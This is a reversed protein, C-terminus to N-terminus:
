RREIGPDPNRNVRKRNVVSCRPSFMHCVFIMGGESVWIAASAVGFLRIVCRAKMLKFADVFRFEIKNRVPNKREPVCAASPLLAQISGWAYATAVTTTDGPGANISLQSGRLNSLPRKSGSKM